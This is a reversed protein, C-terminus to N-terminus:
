NNVAGVLDLDDDGTFDSGPEPDNGEDPKKKTEGKGDESQGKSGYSERSEAALDFLKKMKGDGEAMDGKVLISYMPVRPMGPKFVRYLINKGKDHHLLGRSKWIPLVQEVDFGKDRLVQSFTEVPMMISHVKGAREEYKGVVTNKMLFDNKGRFFKGSNSSFYNLIANYATQATDRNEVANNEVEALTQALTELDLGLGLSQNALEGALLVVALKGGIRESLSDKNLREMLEGRMEQWRMLVEAPDMQYLHEVYAIGAHGYNELIGRELREANGASETLQPARIETLRVRVGSKSSDTQRLISTESSSIITTLWEGQERATGNSKLAAKGKGAAAQYIFQTFDIDSERHSTDDIVVPVGFNGQLHNVIGMDTGYWLKVLGEGSTDPLGFPSVALKSAVTKGTSSLGCFNFLLTDVRAGNALVGLLPATFGVALALELWPRGTVEARVVTKWDELTGRPRLDYKCDGYVSDLGVAKDLKYIREGEYRGWGVTSHEYTRPAAELANRLYEVYDEAVEPWCDAGFKTLMPLKAKTIEGRSVKKVVEKGDAEFSLFIQVEGTDVNTQYAKVWIARGIVRGDGEEDGDVLYGNEIKLAV